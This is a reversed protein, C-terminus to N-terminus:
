KSSGVKTALHYPIFIGSAQKGMSSSSSRERVRRRKGGRGEGGEEREGGEEEKKCTWLHSAAIALNTM